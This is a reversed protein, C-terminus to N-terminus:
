IFPLNIFLADVVALLVYLLIVIVIVAQLLEVVDDALDV